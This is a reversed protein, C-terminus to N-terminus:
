PWQVSLVFYEYAYKRTRWSLFEDRM